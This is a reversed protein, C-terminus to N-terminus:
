IMSIEDTILVKLYQYKNRLMHLTEDSPKKYEHSKLGSKVPLHFASHLTIGNIGTAAKGTSSTVFVSPQDPNQNPYRLVRKLYETIAKILFSKGVGAFESLFIQFPIPPLENNKEALKCHLAYQMIFNFLHQQGENLQSFIEYFQEDPLLFNDIIISVVPANSVNDSGELDLDLLNPNTMSFHTNDEEAESQVFSFNQLEEYDIDLYPEHKKINCLIDGEVERYRDEYCQNELKLENENRWSM